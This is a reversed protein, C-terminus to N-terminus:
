GFARRGAFVVSYLWALGRASDRVSQFFFARRVSGPLSQGLDEFRRVAFVVRHM